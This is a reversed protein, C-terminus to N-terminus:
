ACLLLTTGDWIGLLLREEGRVAVLYPDLLIRDQFLEGLRFEVEPLEVRLRRASEAIRPHVEALDLAPREEWHAPGRMRKAQALVLLGLVAVAACGSALVFGHAALAVFGLLGAVMALGFALRLATRHRYAWSPAHRQLEAAKHRELLELDLLQLGLRAAAAELRPLPAAPRQDLSRVMLSDFPM